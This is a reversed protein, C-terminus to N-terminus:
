GESLARYRLWQEVTMKHLPIEKLDEAEEEPFVTVNGPGQTSELHAHTKCFWLKEDEVQNGCKSSYCIPIKRKDEIPSPLGLWEHIFKKQEFSEVAKCCYMQRVDEIPSTKTNIGFKKAVAPDSAAILAFKQQDNLSDPVDVVVGSPTRIKPM